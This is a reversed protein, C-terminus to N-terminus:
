VRQSKMQRIFEPKVYVRQGDRLTNKNKETGKLVTDLRDMFM